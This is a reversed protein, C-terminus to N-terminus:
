SVMNWSALFCVPDPLKGAARPCFIRFPRASDIRHAPWQQVIGASPTHDTGIKAGIRFMIAPKEDESAIDGDLLVGAKGTVAAIGLFVVIRIEDGPGLVALNQMMATMKSSPQFKM